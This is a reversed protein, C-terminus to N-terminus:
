YDEIIFLKIKSYCEYLYLNFNTRKNPSYNENFTKFTNECKIKM